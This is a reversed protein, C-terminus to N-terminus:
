RVAQAALFEGHGDSQVLVAFPPKVSGSIRLELATRGNWYGLSEWHHVTNVYHVTRGANEGREIAVESRPTFAALLIDARGIGSALPEIRAVYGNGAATVTVKARAARGQHKAVYEDVMARFNGRTYNAGHVVFQPTWVMRNGLARAYEYQRQTNAKSGYTDKWGLRDWYDVHFALPLVNPNKALEAMYADAPPCSSCGQSTFLEVVVPNSQATAALPMMALTATMLRLAIKRLMM